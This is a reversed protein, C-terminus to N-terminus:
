QDHIITSKRYAGVSNLHLQPGVIGSTTKAYCHGKTNKISQGIKDLIEQVMRVLSALNPSFTASSDSIGCMHM